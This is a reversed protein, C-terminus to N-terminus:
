PLWVNENPTIESTKKTKHVRQVSELGDFMKVFKIITTEEQKQKEPKRCLKGM